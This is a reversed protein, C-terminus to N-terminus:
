PTKKSVPVGSYSEKSEKMVREGYPHDPNYIPSQIWKTIGDIHSSLTTICEDLVDYTSNLTNVIQELSAVTDRASDYVDDDTKDILQLTRQHRELQVSYKDREDEISCKYVEGATTLLTHLLEVTTTYKIVTDGISSVRNVGSTLGKILASQSRAEDRVHNYDTENNSYHRGSM